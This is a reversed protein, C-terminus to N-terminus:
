IIKHIEENLKKPETHFDISIIVSTFVFPCNILVKFLKKDMAIDKPNMKIIMESGRKYSAMEYRKFVSYKLINFRSLSLKIFKVPISSDPNLKRLVRRRKEKKIKKKLNKNCPFVLKFADIAPLAIKVIPIKKVLSNNKVYRDTTLLLRM